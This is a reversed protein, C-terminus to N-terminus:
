KIGEIDNELKNYYDEGLIENYLNFSIMRESAKKTIGTEKLEKYMERLSYIAGFIGGLPYIVLAFGMDQLEKNTLYPVNSNEVIDIMVPAKASALFKEYEDLSHLGVPFVIDAGAEAYVKCRDITAQFGEVARADTRIALQFDEDGMEKRAIQAAKIRKVMDEVPVVKKGAMHGCKKSLPQDELQIGSIGVRIYEKVTRHVSKNDGYGTDGDAMIPIGTVVRSINEAANIMETGTIVGVDPIGLFTATVASGSMYVADFGAQKVLKATLANYAGPLVAIEKKQVMQKLKASNRMM